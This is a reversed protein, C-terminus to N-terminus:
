NERKKMEKKGDRGTKKKYKQFLNFLYIPMLPHM